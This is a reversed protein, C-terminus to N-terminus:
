NKKSWVFVFGFCYWGFCVFVFLFGWGLVASIFVQIKPFVALVRINNKGAKM